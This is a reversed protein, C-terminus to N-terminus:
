TSLKEQYLKLLEPAADKYCMTIKKMFQTDSSGLLVWLSWKKKILGRKLLVQYFLCRPVVRKELSHLLIGPSQVVDSPEFGSKNIVVDLISSLKDESVVMCWPAKGFSVNLDDESWGWKKLIKVKKDWTSESMSCLVQLAVVFQPTHPNFGLQKVKEVTVKFRDTDRKLVSPYNVLLFVMTSENVGYEKLININPIM